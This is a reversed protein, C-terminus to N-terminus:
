GDTLAAEVELRLEPGVLDAAAVNQGVQGPNRAGVIVGTVEPRSAAWAIALQGVTVGRAAAMPRLAAVIRQATPLKVQMWDNHRFDSSDLRQQDFSGSLFGQSLAGFVIVGIGQEACFPLIDTEIEQHLLSYPSQLSDIARIALCRRMLDVDFNSVGIFRTKGEDALTALAAWTEEVAVDDPPFHIQLLDLQDVGLRRLSQDCEERISAPAGSRWRTGDASWRIACKTAVFVEHRRRRIAQGIVHESHGLGYVPATDIWNVGEDIARQITAVSVRDEQSGWSDVCSPGGLAWAGLGVLSLQPGRHGLARM